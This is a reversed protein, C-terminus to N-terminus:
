PASKFPSRKRSKKKQKNKEYDLEKLKRLIRNFYDQMYAELTLTEQSDLGFAAYVEDMSADLAKGSSIVETFALRDAINWGWEFFQTINRATRLLGIPMRTIKAQQGSLRECLAIIQEPSWSKPGALDFTRGLIDPRDVGAIAFRAVDQTDMYAIATAEGMVWVAQNELIPIAYQGILGQFFGCPRLITYPLGSEALFQETCNKIDMLPVHPYLESGMISFFLYHEVGAAKSANILNLKGQWDVAKISRSDTPRTTAADILTTVGELATGLTDPQCLDGQVLTAGWERLFTAKRLSRVLCTVAHGQDLGRRVIQRGLTGTAGVVLLTM